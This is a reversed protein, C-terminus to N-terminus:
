EAAIVAGNEVKKLVHDVGVMDGNDDFSYTGIVGSFRRLGDLHSRLDSPNAGGTKAVADALIHVADYAAGLYFEISLDGYRERYERLFATAKQNEPNLGPSDFVIMGEGHEGAIEVAKSGSLINSGYLRSPIGLERLQRVITGGAIEVQPNIFIADPNVAKVKTLISRFDGTGPAFNEDAVVTGGGSVFQKKFVKRLAQAYDTNESIVAVNKHERLIVDALLSGGRDDSPNNRFFYTGAGTLDPSSASPSLVLVGAQETIPLLALTEGSCVGGIIMPVRDVNVLKRAANVADKGTCKGDEFVVEIERGNIGGSENIEDTAIRIANSIPEGYSAADGTLPGIYGIRITGPGRAGPVVFLFVVLALIIVALVIPILKM